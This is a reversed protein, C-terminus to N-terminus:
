SRLTHQLSFHLKRGYIVFGFFKYYLSNPVLVVSLMFDNLMIVNLMIVNLMIVNLMIVNLRVVFCCLLIRCEAILMISLTM